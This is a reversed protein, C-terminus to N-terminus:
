ETAGTPMNHCKMKKVAKEFEHITPQRKILSDVREWKSDDMANNKHFLSDLHEALTTFRCNCLECYKSNMRQRTAHKATDREPPQQKFLFKEVDPWEKMELVLPKYLYSRDEVKIFPPKLKRATYTSALSQGRMPSASCDDFTITELLVIKIGFAKAMQVPDSLSKSSSIKRASFLFQAARSNQLCPLQLGSCEQKRALRVSKKFTQLNTVLHTLHKNFFESVDVNYCQIIKKTVAVKEKEKVNPLHVFIYSNKLEINELEQKCTM